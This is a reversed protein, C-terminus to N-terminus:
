EIVYAVNRWVNIFDELLLKIKVGKVNPDNIYIYTNSESIEFGTVVLLHGNTTYSGSINSEQTIYKVTGKISAAMPGITQLEYLFENINVYRKVYSIEGFASMGVCNYVWNGYINNGYDKVISAIYRHPLTDINNFVHKKYELLMTSSTASCIINGISPVDHQYLTPVDYHVEKQLLSNDFNYTKDVLNLALTIRKLIPSQDNISNRKLIIKFSFGTAVKNNLVVIEDDNLKILDKTQDISKNNLGLGWQGYSIYQSWTNNVLFRVLLECTAKTSSIACWTAVADTFDKSEYDESIYTGVASENNLQVYGNNDIFLNDLTGKSFDSLMFFHNQNAIITPFEHTMTEGKINIKLTLTINKIDLQNYKLQGENSLFSSDSSIWEGTLDNFFQTPLTISSRIIAPIHIVNIINSFIVNKDAKKIIVTYTKEIQVNDITMIATLNITNDELTQTIKGDNSVISINSSQWSINYINNGDNYSLPLSIDSDYEKEIDLFNLYNSMNTTDFSLVTITFTKSYKTNRFLLSCEMEVSIDKTNKTILGSNSLVDPNNSKWTIFYNTGDYTIYKPLNFNTSITSPIDLTNLLKNSTEEDSLELVGIIFDKNFTCNNLSFTGHITVEEFEDQQSVIGTSSIIDENDSVWKAEISYGNYEYANNLLVNDSVIEPLQLTDCFDSLIQNYDITKNSCGSILFLFTLYVVLKLYYNKNHM